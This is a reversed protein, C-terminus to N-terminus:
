GQLHKLINRIKILIVVWLSFGSPRESCQLVQVNQNFRIFNVVVIESFIKTPSNLKQADFQLGFPCCDVNSYMVSSILRVM